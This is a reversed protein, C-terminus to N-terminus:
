STVSIGCGNAIKHVAADDNWDVMQAKPEGYYDVYRSMVEEKEPRQDRSPVACILHFHNSLSCFSLPSVVYFGSLKELLEFMKEKENRGFPFEGPMGGIRNCFHYYSFEEDNRIRVSRM